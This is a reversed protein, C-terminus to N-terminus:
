IKRLDSCLRRGIYKPQKIDCIRSGSKSLNLAASPEDKPKTGYCPHRPDLPMGDIGIDRHFGNREV